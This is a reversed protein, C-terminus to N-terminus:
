GLGGILPVTRKALLSQGSRVMHGAESIEVYAFEGKPSDEARAKRKVKGVSGPQGEIRWSFPPAEFFYLM